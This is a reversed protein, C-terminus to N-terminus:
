RTVLAKRARTAYLGTPALSLYRAYNEQAAAGNKAKALAEAYWFFGEDPVGPIAVARALRERASEAQGKQLEAHAATVLLLARASPPRLRLTLAAEARTVFGLAQDPKDARVATAARGILADPQSEDLELAAEYATTAVDIKEAAYLADGYLALADATRSEADEAVLPELAKVADLPRKQQVMLRARLLEAPVSTKTQAPLSALQAAAESTAGKALLAEAVGLTAVNGAVGELGRFLALAADFEGGDLLTRGLARRAEVHNPAIAVAREFSLRAENPRGALRQAQGLLYHADANGPALRLAPELAEIAPPGQGASVQAAALALHAAPQTPARVVLARAAPLLSEVNAGLRLDVRMLLSSAEVDDKGVPTVRYSALEKKAAELAERSDGILAASARALALAGHSEGSGSLGTLAGEGGGQQLLAAAVTAQYRAADGGAESAARASRYALDHEGARLAQGSFFALVEPDDVRLTSAASLAQKAKENDGTSLAAFARVGLALLEDADAGREIRASLGDLTTVLKTAEGAKDELVALWLEARLQQKDPGLAKNLAEYAQELQGEARSLEGSALWALSLRPELATARGVLRKEADVLGVHQALKGGLLSARADKASGSESAALTAEAETKRQEPTRALTRAIAFLPSALQAQEARALTERVAAFDGAGSLARLSQVFLLEDLAAHSKPDLVRAENLRREAAVLSENQGDFIDARAQEVVALADARREDLWHQFGVYGGLAALVALGWGVMLARKVPTAVRPLEATTVWAERSKGRQEPPEFVGQAELLGLVQEPPEALGPEALRLSSDIITAEDEDRDDGTEEFLPRERARQVERERLTELERESPVISTPESGEDEEFEEDFPMSGLAGPRVSEPASRSRQEAQGRSQERPGSPTRSSSRENGSAGASSSARTNAPPRTSAPRDDRSRHDSPEGRLYSRLEEPVEVATTPSEDDRDTEDDFPLAQKANDARVATRLAGPDTLPERMLDEAIADQATGRPRAQPAAQARSPASASSASSRHVAAGLASAGGAKGSPRPEGVSRELGRMGLSDRRSAPSASPGAVRGIAESPVRVAPLSGAAPRPKSPVSEKRGASDVLRLARTHAQRLSGDNPDLSIARELVQVARAPDGREILVQALWRYPEKNRPDIKAAKLLSRQAEQLDGQAYYARGELTLLELNAEDDLLGLHIVELADNSRGAEILASALAHPYEDRRSRFRQLRLDLDSSTM